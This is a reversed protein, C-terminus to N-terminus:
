EINEVIIKQGLTHKGGPFVQEVTTNASEVCVMSRYGDPSMDKMGASKNIWPNWIVTRRSGTKQVTIKRKLGPDHIVSALTTNYVRDTEESFIIPGQQINKNGTLQDIYQENEHNTIKIQEIDSIKFYTHLAETITLPIKRLNVTTLNMELTNEVAMVDYFLDAEFPWFKYSAEDRILQFEIKTYEDTIEEGTVEWKAIRAFGHSPANMRSGFWPWCIPVGGRIPASGDLIAKDSLWFVEEHGPPKWSLLHATSPHYTLM